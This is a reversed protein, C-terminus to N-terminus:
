PVLRYLDFIKKQFPTLETTYRKRSSQISVSRVSKVENLVDQLDYNKFWGVEAVVQNLRITILLAIFQLFDRGEMIATTHIRLRKMDLDNILDDFCKGVSDKNRHVELVHAKDRIDNSALVFWGIHNCKYRAISGENYEVRIGRVSTERIFFFKEYYASHKKHAEWKPNGEHLM